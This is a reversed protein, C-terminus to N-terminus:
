GRKSRLRKYRRGNPAMCKYVKWGILSLIILLFVIAVPKVWGLGLWDLIRFRIGDFYGTANGATVYSGGDIEPLYDILPPRSLIDDIVAMQKSINSISNLYEAMPVNRQIASFSNNSALVVLFNKLLVPISPPGSGKVCGGELILQLEAMLCGISGEPGIVEWTNGGKHELRSVERGICKASMLGSQGVVYQSVEDGPKELTRVFPDLLSNSLPTKLKIANQIVTKHLNCSVFQQYLDTSVGVPDPFDSYSPLVGNPKNNPCGVGQRETKIFLGNLTQMYSNGNYDFTCRKDGVHIERTNQDLCYLWNPPEQPSTLCTTNIEPLVPSVRGPFPIVLGLGNSKRCTPGKIMCLGNQIYSSKISGQVLSHIVPVAVSQIYLTSVDTAKMWWCGAEAIAKDQHVLINKEKIKQELKICNQTCQEVTGVLEQDSGWKTDYGFFEKKCGRKSEMFRCGCWLESIVTAERPVVKIIQSKPLKSHIDKLHASCDLDLPDMLRFHSLRPCLPFVLNTSETSLSRKGRRLIELRPRIGDLYSSPMQMSINLWGRFVEVGIDEDPDLFLRDSRANLTHEILLLVLIDFM